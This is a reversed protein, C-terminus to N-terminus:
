EKTLSNFIEDKLSHEEKKPDILTFRYGLQKFFVWRDSHEFIEETEIRRKLRSDAGNEDNNDNGDEDELVITSITCTNVSVNTEHSTLTDDNDSIIDLFQNPITLHLYGLRPTASDYKIKLSSNCSDFELHVIQYQIINLGIILLLLYDRYNERYGEYLRNFYHDCLKSYKQSRLLSNHDLTLKSFIKSRYLLEDTCKHYFESQDKCGFLYCDEDQIDYGLSFEISRFTSRDDLSLLSSLRIIELDDCVPDRKEKDIAWLQYSKIIEQCLHHRKLLDPKKKTVRSYISRLRELDYHDLKEEIMDNNGSEQGYTTILDDIQNFDM